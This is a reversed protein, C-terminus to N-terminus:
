IGTLIYEVLRKKAAEQKALVKARREAPYDYLSLGVEVTAAEFTEVLHEVTKEVSPRDHIGADCCYQWVFKKNHSVQLPSSCRDGNARHTAIESDAIAKTEVMRSWM